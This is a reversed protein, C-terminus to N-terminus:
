RWCRLPELKKENGFEIQSRVQGPLEMAPIPNAIAEFRWGGVAAISNRGAIANGFLIQSRPSM